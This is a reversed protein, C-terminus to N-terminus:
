DTDEAKDKLAKVDDYFRIGARIWAILAQDIAADLKLQFSVWRLPAVPLGADGPDDARGGFFISQARLAGPDHDEAGEVVMELLLSTLQAITYYRGHTLTKELFGMLMEGEAGAFSQLLEAKDGTVAIVFGHIGFNVGFVWRVNTGAATTLAACLGKCAVTLNQTFHPDDAAPKERGQFGAANAAGNITAPVLAGTSNPLSPLPNLALMNYLVTAANYCSPTHSGLTLSSVSAEVIAQYVETDGTNQTLDLEIIMSLLQNFSIGYGAAKAVLGEQQGAAIIMCTIPALAPQLTPWTLQPVISIVDAASVAIPAGGGVAFTCTTDNIQTLQGTHDLFEVTDEDQNEVFEAFRYQQGIVLVLGCM